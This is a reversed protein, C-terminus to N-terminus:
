VESAHSPHGTASGHARGRMAIAHCAHGMGSSRVRFWPRHLESTTPHRLLEQKCNYKESFEHTDERTAGDGQADAAAPYHANNLTPAHM